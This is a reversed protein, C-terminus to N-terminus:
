ANNKNMSNFNWTQFKIKWSHDNQKEFISVCRVEGFDVMKDSGSLKVKERASHYLYACDGDGNIQIADDSVESGEMESMFGGIWEELSKQGRSCFVEGEPPVFIADDTYASAYGNWDSTYMCKVMQDYADRIEKIDKDSLPM